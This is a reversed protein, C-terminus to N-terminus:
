FCQLIRHPRGTLHYTISNQPPVTSLTTLQEYMETNLYGLIGSGM